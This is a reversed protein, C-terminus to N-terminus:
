LLIWSLELDVKEFVSLKECSLRFYYPIYNRRLYPLLTFLYKHQLTVFNEPHKRVVM